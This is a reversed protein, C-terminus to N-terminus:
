KSVKPNLDKLHRGHHLVIKGTSGCLLCVSSRLLLRKIGRSNYLNKLKDEVSGWHFLSGKWKQIPPFSVNDKGKLFAGFVKRVM